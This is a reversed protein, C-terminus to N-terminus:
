INNMINYSNIDADNNILSSSLSNTNINNKIANQTNILPINNNLESDILESEDIYNNNKILLIDNLLKKLISNNTKEYITILSAFINLTIGIWILNINNNGAAYSTTLIGLSQIFHFLYIIYSNFSNLCQRKKIFRKLDKLKNTEFIEKIEISIDSEKM